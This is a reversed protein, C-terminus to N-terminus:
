FKIRSGGIVQDITAPQTRTTGGPAPPTSRYFQSWGTWGSWGYQAIPGSPASRLAYPSKANQNNASLAFDRIPHPMVTGSQADAPGNAFLSILALTGFVSPLCRLSNRSM